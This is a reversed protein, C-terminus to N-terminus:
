EGSSGNCASTSDKELEQSRGITKSPNPNIKVRTPIRSPYNTLSQQLWGPRMLWGHLPFGRILVSPCPHTVTFGVGRHNRLERESDFKVRM